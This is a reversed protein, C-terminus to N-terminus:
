GDGGTSVGPMPVAFVPLDGRRGASEEKRGFIGM